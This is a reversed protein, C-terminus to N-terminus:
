GYTSSLWTKGQRPWRTRVRSNIEWRTWSPPPPVCTVLLVGPVGGATCLVHCWKVLLLGPLPPPVCTVLPVGPFGGATCLVHCWKVLLLGPPPLLSAHSWYSTLFGAQLVCFMADNSWNSDLLPSSPRMHGIPRWSGRRCYVFWKGM